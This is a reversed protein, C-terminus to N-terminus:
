WVLIWYALACPFAILAGDFRDLAGGHGPMIKGSDKVGVSRKFMSETLDGFTGALSIIVALVIWQTRAADYREGWVSSLIFAAGAAAALGGFFGEWSKKPSIREFLKHRGHRGFMMGFCYAGVDNAWLFIFFSLLPRYDYVNERFVLMNMLAFPLAVYVAGLLVTAIEAAPAESKAYLEAIFIAVVPFALALFIRCSSIWGFGLAFFMLFLTIGVFYGLIKVFGSRVVPFMSYFEYMGVVIIALTLAAFGFPHLVIGSLLLIIFVVGSVTRIAFNNM